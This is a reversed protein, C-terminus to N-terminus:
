VPPAQRQEPGETLWTLIATYVDPHNLLDFHHLGTLRCVADEDFALRDQGGTDGVASDPRVLLDGLWRGVRSDHPGGVTALVVFHRAGAHLPVRTRRAGPADADPASWDAELLDGHRLDRIGVSRADVQEALWRTEPLRRLALALRHAGQELPAGLHPSGLTITDRVLGPWRRQGAATGDGAQALASRAVLGGMSHGVLVLDRVPVPWAAVLEDLLADLQEGNASIRLGTNYRVWVPSYGLDRELLSGYTTRADGHHREAHLSWADETEVLGHLLVVVRESAAPYATRLSDPEPALDHGDHRLSMPLALAAVRESLLDGHAGNLVGLAVRARPLDALAPGDVPAGLSAAVGAARAGASVSGQVAGYAMSAVGDHVARVPRVAPGVRCAVADFVREAIGAHAQSVRQVGGGLVLGALVGLGRVEDARM